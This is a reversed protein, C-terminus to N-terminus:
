KRLRFVKEENNTKKKPPPPALLVVVSLMVVSLKTANLMFSQNAVNLTLLVLCLRCEAYVVSLV